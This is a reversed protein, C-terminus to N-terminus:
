RWSVKEWCHRREPATVEAAEPLTLLVPLLTRGEAVHGSVYWVVV